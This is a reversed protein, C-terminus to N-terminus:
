QQVELLEISRELLQKVKDSYVADHVKAAEILRKIADHATVLYIKFTEKEKDYAPVAAQKEANAAAKLKEEYEDRQAKFRAQFDKTLEMTQADNKRREDEIAAALKKEYEETHDVVAVEVPREKLEKNERELRAAEREKDRLKDATRNARDMEAASKIQAIKLEKEARELDSRAEEVNAAEAELKATLKEREHEAILKEGKLKNIEEELSTQAAVARDKAAGLDKNRDKLKNIEEQLQKYTTTEDIREVIEKQEEDSLRALLMLKSAGFHSLTTVNEGSINEAISIYRYANRRTMGVMEECYSEFNQYGLEKYLKGDRMEKLATAMDFLNQAALSGSTIVRQHLTHARTEIRIKAAKYASPALLKIREGDSQLQEVTDVGARKLQNYSKIDLELEEITM